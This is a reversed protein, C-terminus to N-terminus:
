PMDFFAWGDDPGIEVDPVSAPNKPSIRLVQFLGWAIADGVSSILGSMKGMEHLYGRVGPEATAFKKVSWVSSLRRGSSCRVIGERKREETLMMADVVVEPPTLLANPRDSIWARIATWHHDADGFDDGKYLPHEGFAVEAQDAVTKVLSTQNHVAKWEPWSEPDGVWMGGCLQAAPEVPYLM